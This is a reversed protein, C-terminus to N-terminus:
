IMISPLRFAKLAFVQQWIWKLRFYLNILKIDVAIDHKYPIFAKLNFDSTRIQEDNLM